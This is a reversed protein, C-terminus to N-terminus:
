SLLGLNILRYGMAARSVALLSALEDIVKDQDLHSRVAAERVVMDRPMLLAAAFTNAEIEERDTALSSRRDRMDVRLPADLIVARGRHLELHGLEHAVTFRQRVRAHRSNVGIVREDGDRLLMGSVDPDMDQHVVVAGLSRAIGVPDVPPDLM